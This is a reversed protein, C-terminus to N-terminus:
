NNLSCMQVEMSMPMISLFTSFRSFHGPNAVVTEDVSYRFGESNEGLCILEAGETSLM